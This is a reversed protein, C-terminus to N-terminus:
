DARERRTAHYGLSEVAEVIRADSVRADPDSEVRLTENEYLVEASTVGPLEEVADEVHRACSECTMGAIAYRRTVQDSLTSVTVESGGFVYGVYSPFSAFGLVLVTATWLMVRNFRQIKPNPACAEGPACEPKRVYVFYFGAGLLLATVALFHVRYAEFFGAVGSASVGVGILVLPLWCCASSLIAAVLAGGASWLGFHRETAPTPGEEELSEQEAGYRDGM